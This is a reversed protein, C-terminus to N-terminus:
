MDRYGNECGYRKDMDMIENSYMWGMVATEGDGCGGCGLGGLGGM